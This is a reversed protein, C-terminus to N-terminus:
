QLGAKSEQLCRDKGQQMSANISSAIATPLSCNPSPDPV